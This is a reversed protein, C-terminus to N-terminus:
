NHCTALRLLDKLLKWSFALQLDMTGKTSKGYM